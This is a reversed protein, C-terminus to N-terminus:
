HTLPLTLSYPTTYHPTKYCHPLLYHATSCHLLPLTSCCLLLAISCHLLSATSCYLLPATSCHPIPVIFYHLLPANSGDPFPAADNYSKRIMDPFDTLIYRLMTRTCVTSVYSFSAVTAAESIVKLGLMDALKQSFFYRFLASSEWFSDTRAASTQDKKTM